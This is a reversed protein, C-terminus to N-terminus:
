TSQGCDSERLRTTRSTYLKMWDIGMILKRNKLDVQAVTKGKARTKTAMPFPYEVFRESTKREGIISDVKDKASTGTDPM